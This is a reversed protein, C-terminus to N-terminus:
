YKSWVYLISDDVRHKM